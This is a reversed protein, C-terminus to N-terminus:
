QFSSFLDTEDILFYLEVDYIEFGLTWQVSLIQMPLFSRCLMSSIVIVQYISICVM